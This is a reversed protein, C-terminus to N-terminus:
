PRQSIATRLIDMRTRFFDSAVRFASVNEVMDQMTKELDRNNRDHFLVGPSPTGPELVLSGDPRLKIDRTDRWPLPASDGGGSKRRVEVAASLAKRFGNVSVDVPRFDPTELNAVNHAIVQQRQAAFRMSLELSPLAGSNLVDNIFM